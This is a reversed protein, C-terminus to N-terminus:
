DASPLLVINSGASWRAASGAGPILNADAPAHRTGGAARQPRRAWRGIGDARIVFYGCNVTRAMKTITPVGQWARVIGCAGSVPCATFGFTVHISCSRAQPSRVCSRDFSIDENFSSWFRVWGLFGKVLRAGLDWRIM